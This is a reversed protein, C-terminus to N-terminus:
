NTWQAIVEATSMSTRKEFFTQDLFQEYHLHPGTNTTGYGPQGPLLVVGLPEEITLGEGKKVTSGIHLYRSISGDSNLVTITSTGSNSLATTNSLVLGEKVAFIPLPQKRATFDTGLHTASTRNTIRALSDLMPETASKGSMPHEMVRRLLPEKALSSQTALSTCSTLLSGWVILGFFVPKMDGTQCLKDCTVLRM